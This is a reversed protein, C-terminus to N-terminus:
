TISSRGASKSTGTVTRTGSVMRETRRSGSPVASGKMQLSPATENRTGRSCHWVTATSSSHRRSSLFLM